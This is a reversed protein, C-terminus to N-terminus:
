NRLTNHHAYIRKDFRFGRLQLIHSILTRALINYSKNLNTHEFIKVGKLFIGFKIIRINLLM